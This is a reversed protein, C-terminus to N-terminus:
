NTAGPEACDFRIRSRSGFSEAGRTFDLAVDCSDVRLLRARERTEARTIEAARM